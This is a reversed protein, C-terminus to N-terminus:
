CRLTHVNQNQETQVITSNEANKENVHDNKESWQYNCWLRKMHNTKIKVFDQLAEHHWKTPSTDQFSFVSFM